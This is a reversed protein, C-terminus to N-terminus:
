EYYEEVYGCNICAYAKVKDDWILKFDCGSCNLQVKNM